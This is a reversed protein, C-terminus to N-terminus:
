SSSATLGPMTGMALTLGGGYSGSDACCASRMGAKTKHLHSGKPKLMTKSAACATTGQATREAGSLM